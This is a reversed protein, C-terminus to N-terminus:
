MEEELKSNTKQEIKTEMLISYVKKGIATGKLFASSHSLTKTSNPSTINFISNSEKKEVGEM